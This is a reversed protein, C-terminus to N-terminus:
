RVMRMGKASMRNPIIDGSGRLMVDEEDDEECDDVHEVHIYKNSM